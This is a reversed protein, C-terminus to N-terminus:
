ATATLVHAVFRGPGRWNNGDGRRERRLGYPIGQGEPHFREVEANPHLEGGVVLDELLQQVRGAQQGRVRAAEVDHEHAELVPHGRGPLSARRVRRGPREALELGGHGPKRRSRARGQDHAERGGRRRREGIGGARGVDGGELAPEGLASAPEGAHRHHGRGLDRAPEGRFRHVIGLPERESVHGVRRRPEGGEAGRERAASMARERARRLDDHEVAVLRQPGPHATLVAREADVHVGGADGELLEHEALVLRSPEQAEAALVGLGVHQLDEIPMGPHPEAPLVEHGPADVPLRLGLVDVRDGLLQVEAEVAEDEDVVVGDLAGLHLGRTRLDEDQRQGRGRLNWREEVAHPREVTARQGRLVPLARREIALLRRARPQAIGGLRELREQSAEVETHVDARHRRGLGRPDRLERLAGVLEVGGRDAPGLALHQPEVGRAELAERHADGVAEAVVPEDAHRDEGRGRGRNTTSLRSM